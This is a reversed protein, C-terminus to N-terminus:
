CPLSCTAGSPGLAEEDGRAAGALVAPFTPGIM